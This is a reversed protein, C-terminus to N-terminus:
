KLIKTGGYSIERDKVKFPKKYPTQCTRDTWEMNFKKCDARTSFDKCEHNVRKCSGLYDKDVIDNPKRCNENNWGNLGEIFLAEDYNNKLDQTTCQKMKNYQYEFIDKKKNFVKKVLCCNKHKFYDKYSTITRGTSNLISMHNNSGLGHFDEKRYVFNVLCGLFYIIMFYKIIDSIKLM